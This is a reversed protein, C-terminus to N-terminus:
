FKVFLSILDTATPQVTSLIMQVTMILFDYRTMGGGGGIEGSVASISEEM